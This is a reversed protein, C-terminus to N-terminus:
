ALVSRMLYAQLRERATEEIREAIVPHKKLSAMFDMKKLEFTSCDTKAKVTATRPLDQLLGVEGFWADPGKAKDIEENFDSLISVEGSALFFM